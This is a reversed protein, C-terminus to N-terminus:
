PILSVRASGSIAGGGRGLIGLGYSMFGLVEFGLGLVGFGLCDLDQPQQLAPFLELGFLADLHGHLPAAGVGQLRM